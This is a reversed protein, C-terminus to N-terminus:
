SVDVGAGRHLHEDVAAVRTNLAQYRRHTLRAVGRGSHEPIGRRHSRGAYPQVILHDPAAEGTARQAATASVDERLHRAAGAAHARTNATDAAANATATAYAADTADATDPADATDAAHTADPAERQQGLADM